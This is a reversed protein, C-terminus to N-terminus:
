NDKDANCKDCLYEEVFAGSDILEEIDKQREAKVMEGCNTCLPVATTGPFHLEQSM